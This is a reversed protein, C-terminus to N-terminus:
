SLFAVKDTLDTSTIPYQQRAVEAQGSGSARAVLGRETFLAPCWNSKTLMTTAKMVEFRNRTVSSIPTPRMSVRRVTRGLWLICAVQVYTWRIELHPSSRTACASETTTEPTAVGM